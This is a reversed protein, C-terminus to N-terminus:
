NSESQKLEREVQIRLEEDSMEAPTKANETLPQVPKGLFRDLLSNGASIRDSARVHSEVGEEGRIEKLVKLTPLVEAELFTKMEEQVNKKIQSVVRERAFPQKLVQSVWQATFGTYAAIETPTYGQVTMEAFLRHAPKENFVERYSNTDNHLGDELEANSGVRRRWEQNNRPEIFRACNPDTSQRPLPADKVPKAGIRPTPDYEENM